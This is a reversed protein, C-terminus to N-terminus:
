NKIGCDSSSDLSQLSQRSNTVYISLASNSVQKNDQLVNLQRTLNSGGESYSRHTWFIVIVPNCKLFGTPISVKLQKLLTHIISLFVVSLEHDSGTDLSTCFVPTFFIILDVCLTNCCCFSLESLSFSAVTWAITLVQELVM